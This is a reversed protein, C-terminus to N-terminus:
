RMTQAPELTSGAARADAITLDAPLDEYTVVALRAAARAQDVTEAAVAFLSQGVYLVEGDAFLPDDGAVPSVDNTGPIDQACVVDVVGPAARVPTLDLSVIRAHARASMGLAVHLLDRPEPIDDIYLARGSVHREASDHKLARHVVGPPDRPRAGSDPM